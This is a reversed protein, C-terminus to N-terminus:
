LLFYYNKQKIHLWKKQRESYKFMLGHADMMSQSAQRLANRHKMPEELRYSFRLMLKRCFFREWGCPLVSKANGTRLFENKVTPALLETRNEIEQRGKGYKRETKCLHM